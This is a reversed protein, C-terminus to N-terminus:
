KPTSHSNFDSSFSNLSFASVSDVLPESSTDVNSLYDDIQITNIKFGAKKFVDKWFANRDRFPHCWSITSGNSDIESEKKNNSTLDFSNENVTNEINRNCFQSLIELSPSSPLSTNIVRLTKFSLSNSSSDSDLTFSDINQDGNLLQKHSSIETNFKNDNLKDKTDNLENVLKSDFVIDNTNNDIPKKQNVALHKNSHRGVKQDILEKLHNIRLLLPDSIIDPTEELTLERLSNLETDIISINPSNDGSDVNNLPNTLLTNKYLETLALAAKNTAMKYNKPVSLYTTSDTLEDVSDVDSSSENQKNDESDSQIIVDKEDMIKLSSTNIAVNRFVKKNRQEKVAMRHKKLKEYLKIAIEQPYDEETNVNNQSKNAFDEIINVSKLANNDESSIIFDNLYSNSFSSYLLKHKPILKKPWFLRETTKEISEESHSLQQRKEIVDKIVKESKQLSELQHLIDIDKEDINQKYLSSKMLQKRRLLQKHKELQKENQKAITENLFTKLSNVSRKMVMEQRRKEFEKEESEHKTVLQAWKHASGRESTILKYEDKLHRLQRNIAEIEKNQSELIQQNSKKVMLHRWKKVRRQSLDSFHQRTKVLRKASSITSESM